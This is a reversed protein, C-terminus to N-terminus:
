VVSKRDQYPEQKIKNILEMQSVTQNGIQLRHIEAIQNLADEASPIPEFSTSKEPKLTKLLPRVVFLLLALFGFGILGNKLLSLFIPANWWKDAEGAGVDGTDQFPINVVTVQDGREANFGVSSKVLSDIKQLEDPSRPTYKPKTEKGDKGPAAADYKGDVLIAVSVKSLTGVPEITRATARSVEYNLTEDNKSGGGSTGAPQGATRGLNTQVGPVGGTVTSGDQKEESRQESRVVTEPDYKEEYREVQRFDFVASVRAVSRGTGVAKDLLSQLREETSREYARQVEQMSATMKGAADGPTNKSLLKGKQDLVTVHEPNMGEIASAVLHVIGQVDNESRFLM